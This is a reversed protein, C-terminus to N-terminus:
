DTVRARAAQAGPIPFGIEEISQTATVDKRRLVQWATLALIKVDLWLSFHDVYWVDLQLRESFKLTHRGNVVAWGTLGPPVDHRRREEPTYQDLYEVLLPRPGVLSMDGRLVNWLEPLEDLSTSRLWRGLPSVRQADTAYPLEGPLLPRMTRFKLLTFLRGARGPRVHRFFVPRGEAALLVLATMALVPSLLVLGAAAGLLDIGRKVIRAASRRSTASPVHLIDIRAGGIRLRHVM